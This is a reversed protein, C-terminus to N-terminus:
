IVTLQRLASRLERYSEDLSAVSTDLTIEPNKPVEYADDIGTFKKLEGRRARQYLGKPDRKECVALPTSVYVEVYRRCLRRIEDRAEAYPAIFSAIVTVGHKELLSAIFGMTRLHKLREARDFGANGTIARIADGDLLEVSAGSANLERYLKEALTTKGAGSLGTFWIVSGKM